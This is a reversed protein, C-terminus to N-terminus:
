REGSCRPGRPIRNGVLLGEPIVVQGLIGRTEKGLAFGPERLLLVGRRGM